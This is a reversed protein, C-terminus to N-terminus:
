RLIAGAEDGGLRYADAPQVMDRLIEFIGKLVEDAGAHTFTTNILKLRDVDLLIISLAEAPQRFRLKVELDPLYHRKAWLIGFDDHIRDRSLIEDRLWYLRLRGRQTIVLNVTAYAPPMLAWVTKRIAHELEANGPVFNGTITAVSSKSVYADSLLVAGDFALDLLAEFNLNERVGRSM